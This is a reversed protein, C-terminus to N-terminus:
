WSRRTAACDTDPWLQKMGPLQSENLSESAGHDSLCWARQCAENPCRSMGISCTPHPSHIFSCGCVCHHIHGARTLDFIKERRMPWESRDTLRVENCGCKMCLSSLGHSQDSHGCVCQGACDRVNGSVDRFTM